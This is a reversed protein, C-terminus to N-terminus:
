AWLPDPLEPDIGYGALADAVRAPEVKGEAALASLVAVVVHGADVEFFRRLAQRTDSRGYGDTGLPVFSGPVWRAVQDPVMKLYDTVAVVPGGVGALSRTIFPERRPAGPHLRNWREVSLAEERLAKYSIASWLEAGVGYHEALDSQAQRAARQAPGSFLITARHAMGEPAPAWRYLGDLIGQEVGPPKPPMAYNENYLTLYYFTDEGEGGYMRHLGHEVITAMEYAFAPDYARCAPVVSALLQSHGDQHQLGEGLLTTRGATAGLLFGRARADGALWILDGIRQFGFMSYFTFFPVMPVGRTAYATAAAIWSAMSGAETIGEELIQGDKSERYSLLLHHDVPEYLQGESAYIRLEKFLADMGFTRGEDPVIPVVRPGFAEDRALNRVLRTFAMTTSAEQSGSGADFEAFPGHGPLTLPRRLAVPRSPLPGDLARRQALLYQVEPSDQPPRYYPPPRGEALAEDPVDAHLELRDRLVMLQDNSLKKIQHTANRGEVDPGLAWGKITELADSWPKQLDLAM